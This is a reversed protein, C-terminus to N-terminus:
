SQLLGGEEPRQVLEGLVLPAIDWHVAHEEVAIGSVDVSHAPIDPHDGLLHAEGTLGGVADEEEVLALDHLVVGGPFEEVVWPVAPGPPEEPAALVNPSRVPLCVGPDM